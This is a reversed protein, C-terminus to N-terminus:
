EQAAPTYHRTLGTDNKIHTLPRKVEVKKTKNAFLVPLNNKTEYATNVAYPLDLKLTKKNM